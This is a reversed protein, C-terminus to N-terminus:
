VDNKNSDVLAETQMPTHKIGAIKATNMSMMEVAWPRQALFGEPLLARNHAGVVWIPGSGLRALTERAVDDCEMAMSHSPESDTDDLEEFKMNQHSPTNTAGLVSCMVDIGLPKLDHWLGEALIQLYAKTAPYISMYAAGALGAMSGLFVIGGRKRQKMGQSFHHSLHVPMECNMRIMFDLSERPWETFRDYHINSGLNYIFLGVERNRSVEIVSDVAHDATLDVALVEVMVGHENEISKKLRQLPVDRRALLILNIGQAGLLRAFSEGTGESGGAIVAWPGYRERFDRDLSNNNVLSNEPM